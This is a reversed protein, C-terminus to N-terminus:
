AKSKLAPVSSGRLTLGSCARANIGPLRLTSLEKIMRSRKINLFESHEFFDDLDETNTEEEGESERKWNELAATL